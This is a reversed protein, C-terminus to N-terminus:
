INKSFIYDLYPLFIPSLKQNGTNRNKAQTSQWISEPPSFMIERVIDSSEPGSSRSGIAVATCERVPRGVV